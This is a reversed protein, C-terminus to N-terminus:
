KVIVKGFQFPRKKMKGPEKRWKRGIAWPQISEGFILLQNKVL